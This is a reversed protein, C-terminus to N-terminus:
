AGGEPSMSLADAINDFGAAVGDQPLEAAIPLEIALLDRVANAYETRNLRRILPRGAYPKRRAAADLDSTLGSTFARVVAADPRPLKPPPMEGARLKRVVKEWIEPHASPDTASIGELVLGGSKVKGSHCQVCYQTLLAERNVPETAALLPAALLVLM